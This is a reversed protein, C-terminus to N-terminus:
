QCMKGSCFCDLASMTTSEVVAVHCSRESRCYCWWRCCRHGIKGVVVDPPQGDYPKIVNESELSTQICSRVSLCMSLLFWTGINFPSSTRVASCMYAFSSNRRREAGALRCPSGSLGNPSRSQNASWGGEMGAKEDGLVVESKGSMCIIDSSTAM